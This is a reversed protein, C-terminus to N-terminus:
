EYRQIASKLKGMLEAKYLDCRCDHYVDWRHQEYREKKVKKAAYSSCVRHEKSFSALIGESYECSYSGTTMLLTLTLFILIKRM